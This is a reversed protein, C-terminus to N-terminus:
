QKQITRKSAAKIADTTSIEGTDLLNQSYRNSLKKGIKKAFLLFGYPQVYIRDRPEASNGM